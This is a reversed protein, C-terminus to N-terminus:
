RGTTWPAPSGSVTSSSPGAQPVHRGRVDGRDAARHRAVRRHRGPLGGPLLRAPLEACVRGRPRRYAPQLERHGLLVRGPADDRHRLDDADAAAAGRPAQGAPRTRGPQERARGRDRQRRREMREEAPWMTRRRSSMCRREERVVEGTLPDLTYLREVEDGFLEIRVALGRVGPHDRRHGWAGPVHRPSPSTTAPRVADDRLPAAARDRDIRDGVKLSVMRDVYEQPPAWATSARCRRSSSSMAGPSCRTRPTTGCGNSRRTSRPTRRSIPTRRRSMPRPSTTTTTPSVFYERTTRCCNASSTPWSLPWPRTRAMVLTPRQVQEVLWATTASKGTGTAGLLSM